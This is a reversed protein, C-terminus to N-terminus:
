RGEFSVLEHHDATFKRAGHTLLSEVARQMDATDFLPAALDPLADDTAYVGCNAARHVLSKTVAHAATPGEALTRAWRLAEADVMDAAVVRNVINWEAFLAADFFGGSFTIELARAKGVRQALRYAGGLFTAAGIKAEVQAFRADEAAIILDCALAIELGAALCLGRVAAIIPFPAQEIAHILEFGRRIMARAEEPSTGRFLSVDVGGSFPACDSRLVMARVGAAEAGHITALMRSGLEETYLNAPPNSMTLVAIDDLTDLNVLAM